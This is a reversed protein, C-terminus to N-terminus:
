ASASSESISELVATPRLERYIKLYQVASHQWSFDKRMGTQQITKWSKKDQFLVIARKTAELLSDAAPENFVIGTASQDEISHPLADVVTDALGGTRRVIPLTGYRQSYMQNLGCPEFRSPMFFIDAGAEILHALKENYGLSIAIKEPYLRALNQLRREYSKDGSGLVIFQLPMNVLHPLSDIVLDIGKQQVLRSILAIVPIEENV